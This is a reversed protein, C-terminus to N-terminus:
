AGTRKQRARFDAERLASPSALKAIAKTVGEASGSIKVKIKTKSKAM